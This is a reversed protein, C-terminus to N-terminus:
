AGQLQTSSKVIRKLASEVEAAISSPSIGSGGGVSIQVAGPAITVSRSNTTTRVSSSVAAPGGSLGMDALLGTLLSMANPAAPNIIYEPEDGVLAMHPQDVYGGSGYVPIQNSRGGRGDRLAQNAANAKAAAYGAKDGIAQYYAVWEQPSTPRPMDLLATKYDKQADTARKTASEVGLEAERLDLAADRAERSDAPYDAMVDAYRAQADELRLKARELGIEADTSAIAADAAAYIADAEFKSAEALRKAAETADETNGSLIGIGYALSSIPSTIADTWKWTTEGTKNYERAAETGMEWGLAITSFPHTMAEAFTPASEIGEEMAANYEKMLPTVKSFTDVALALAAVKGLGSLAASTKNVAVTTLGESAILAKQKAIYTAIAGTAKGFVTVMSSLGTFMRGTVSLVPGIAAALAVWKIINQQQDKDLDSFASAQAKAWALIPEAADLADLLAPALADGFEIAMDTVRNRAIEMQSATTEYRQAAEKTLATNEEWAKSSIDLADTMLDSAGAARLLADRQRVETIGLEDLALIASGGQEEMDALGAIFTMLASAADDKWAKSFDQASMGAIKAWEDLEDGSTEVQTAIEIMTKSIASGGAEAEIGVSSLAAALALMQDESMGVQSGAGAIRMTMEVIKSETTAMNNGLAVVASGLNDFEDQGMGTINSLQALAVAADSAALDTSEGLDIMVRTFALVNDTEIGLQGAAEAVGAIEERSAPLELAMDRIGQRLTALQEDTADVTKIVGAFASEFEISANTAAAGIGVIPLTLGKTLADGTRSMGQGLRNMKGAFQEIGVSAKAFGLAASGDALDFRDQFKKLAREAQRTGRDNFSSEISLKVTGTRRAM